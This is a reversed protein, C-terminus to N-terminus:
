HADTVAETLQGDQRRQDRVYPSLTGSLLPGSVPGLLSLCTRRLLPLAASSATVAPTRGCPRTLTSRNPRRKRGEAANM